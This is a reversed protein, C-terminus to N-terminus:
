HNLLHRHSSDISIKDIFDQLTNLRVNGHELFALAIQALVIEGYAVLNVAHLAVDVAEAPGEGLHVLTEVTDFVAEFQTFEGLGLCPKFFM